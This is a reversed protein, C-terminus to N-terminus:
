YEDDDPYDECLIRLDDGRFYKLLEMAMQSEPGGTEWDHLFSYFSLHSNQAENVFNVLAKGIKRTYEDTSEAEEKYRKICSDMMAQDRKKSWERVCNTKNQSRTRRYIFDYLDGRVAVIYSASSSNSVFGMRIKM